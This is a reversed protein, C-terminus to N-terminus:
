GNGILGWRFSTYAVSSWGSRFMMPTSKSLRADQPNLFALQEMTKSVTYSLLVSLGYAM